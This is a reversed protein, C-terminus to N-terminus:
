DRFEERLYDLRALIERDTLQFLIAEETAAEHTIWHHHPLTFVDNKTWEIRDDGAQSVGEGEAVFCIMNANTRYAATQRGSALSLLYCDIGSMVAGGSAPNTYRLRRSGDAAVPMAALAPKVTAWPYRFMPSYPREGLATVPTVGASGYAEDALRQAIDNSPGSEFETIDFHRQLGVDLSDLWVVRTEGNHIHEHWTWGPTLILDGPCMPCVKGDVTTVAGGDGEIM